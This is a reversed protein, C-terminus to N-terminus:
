SSRRLYKKLFNQQSMSQQIQKLTNMKKCLNMIEAANNFDESHNFAAPNDEEISFMKM